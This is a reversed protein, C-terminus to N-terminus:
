SGAGSSEDKARPERLAPDDLMPDDAWERPEDHGERAEGHGERAERHKRLHLLRRREREAESIDPEWSYANADENRPLYRQATTQPPFGGAFTGGYFEKGDVDHTESGGSEVFNKFRWLENRVERHDSGLGSGAKELLSGPQWDIHVHLSTTNADVVGFTVTGRHRVGGECTWVMRQGPEEEIVTTDFERRVGGVKTVWHHTTDSTRIVSKVGHMFSPFSEFRLWEAYVTQAPRAIEVTEDVTAMIM